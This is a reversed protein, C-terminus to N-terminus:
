SPNLWHVRVNQSFWFRRGFAVCRLRAAIKQLAPAGAAIGWVRCTFARFTALFPSEMQLGLELRVICSVNIFLFCIPNGIPNHGRRHMGANAADCYADPLEAAL